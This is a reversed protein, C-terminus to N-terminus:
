GADAAGGRTTAFPTRVSFALVSVKLCDRIRLPAVHTCLEHHPFSQEELFICPLGYTRAFNSGGIFEGTRWSGYDASFTEGYDYLCM